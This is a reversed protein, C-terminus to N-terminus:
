LMRDNEIMPDQGHVGDYFAGGNNPNENNYMWNDRTMYRGGNNADKTYFGQPVGSSADFLPPRVCRDSPLPSGLIFGGGGTSPRQEYGRGTYPTVINDYFDAITQGKAKIGGQLTIQNMKDVPDEPLASTGNIKDKFGIFKERYEDVEDRTFDSKSKDVVCGCQANGDLVFDRIYRNMDIKDEGISCVNGLVDVYKEDSYTKHLDSFIPPSVKLKGSFSDSTIKDDDDEPDATMKDNHIDPFVLHGKKKRESRIDERQTSKILEEVSERNIDDSTKNGRTKNENEDNSELDKDTVLRNTYHYWKKSCNTTDLGITGLDRYVGDNYTKTPNEPLIIKNKEEDIKEADREEKTETLTKVVSDVVSMGEKSGSNNYFLHLVVIIALTILIVDLVYSEM